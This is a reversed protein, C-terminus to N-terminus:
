RGKVRLEAISWYYTREQATQTLRIFRAGRPEFSFPLTIDLPDDIAASFAMLATGGAWAERWQQGDASTEVHLVRPFDAVYGGLLMELGTVERVSGLDILLRDGPYQPRGAHWRTVRDGDAIAGILHPNDVSVATAIPLTQGVPM